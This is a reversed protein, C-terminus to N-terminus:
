KETTNFTPTDLLGVNVNQENIQLGITLIIYEVLNYSIYSPFFYVISCIIFEHVVFHRHLLWSKKKVYKSWWDHTQDSIQFVCNFLYSGDIGNNLNTLKIEDAKM